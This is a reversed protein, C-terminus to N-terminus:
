VCVDPPRGDSLTTVSFCPTAHSFWSGAWRWRPPSSPWLRPHRHACDGTETLSGWGSRGRPRVPASLSGPAAPGGVRWARARKQLESGGRRASRRERCRAGTDTRNPVAPLQAVPDRGRRPGASSLRVDGGSGQLGVEAGRKSPGSPTSAGAFSSESEPKEGRAWPATCSSDLGPEEGLDRSESHGRRLQSLKRERAGRCGGPGPRPGRGEFSRESWSGGAGERPRTVM